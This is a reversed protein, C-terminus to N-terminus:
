TVAEFRLPIFRHGFGLGDAVGSGGHLERFIVCHFRGLFEVVQALAEPNVIDRPVQQFTAQEAAVDLSGLAEL